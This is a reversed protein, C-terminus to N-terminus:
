DNRGLIRLISLFLNVFDLYLSLALSVVWGLGAQGNTQEYVLRIKQNDWAILGAFIVVMIYSILYSLGSSQLFINVLSALLVGILAGTLARGMGSLDKKVMMGLGAMVFFMLASSVFAALVTQQTYMAVIFSMTFGNLASYTLFLPLAAPSNKMAMNSAMFVLALELFIAGYYIVRNGLLVAQLVGSLSTLMLAAVIASIGIGLGVFGYIKAYFQNIGEREQIITHNM